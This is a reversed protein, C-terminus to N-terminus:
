NYMWIVPYPKTDDIDVHVFDRGMGIRKFGISLLAKLILFREKSNSVHIDAAMGKLHASDKVGGVEANHESCRYGSSVKFSVGARERALDLMMVLREDVLQEAHERRCKCYFEELRFFRYKM